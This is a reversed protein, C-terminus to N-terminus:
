KKDGTKIGPYFVLPNEHLDVHFSRDSPSGAITRALYTKCTNETGGDKVHHKSGFTLAVLVDAEAMLSNRAFFGNSVTTTCDPSAIARSIEQLSAIQTNREFKRHLANATGGPNTKWDFVGTDHFKNGAWPTPLHLVLKECTKALFLRVALHDAYAAGGSVLTKPGDIKKLFDALSEQMSQYLAKSLLDADTRRGASGAIAITTM